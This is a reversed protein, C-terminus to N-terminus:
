LAPLCGYVNKHAQLLEMNSTRVLGKKDQMDNLMTLCKFFMEISMGGDGQHNHESFDYKFCKNLQKKCLSIANCALGYEESAREYRVPNEFDQDPYQESEKNLKAIIGNYSAITKLLIEENECNEIWNLPSTYLSMISEGIAFTWCAVTTVLLFIFTTTTLLMSYLIMDTKM